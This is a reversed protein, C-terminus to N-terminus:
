QPKFEIRGADIDADDFGAGDGCRDPFLGGTSGVCHFGTEGCVLQREVVFMDVADGADDGFGLLMCNGCVFNGIGDFVTVANSRTQMWVADSMSDTLGVAAQTIAVVGVMAFVTLPLDLFVRKLLGTVDGTIVGHVLAALVVLLLVVGGLGLAIRFPSSAGGSFWSADLHPSSSRDMVSWVFGLLQVCGKAIWNTIGEFIKDGAWGALGDFASTVFSWM